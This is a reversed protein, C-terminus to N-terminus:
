ATVGNSRCFESFHHSSWIYVNEPATEILKRGYLAAYNSAVGNHLLAIDRVKARRLPDDGCPKLWEFSFNSAIWAKWDKRLPPGVFANTHVNAATMKLHRVFNVINVDDGHGAKEYMRTMEDEYRVYEEVAARSM